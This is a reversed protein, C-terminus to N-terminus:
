RDRAARVRAGAKAADRPRPPFPDRADGTLQVPKEDLAVVPCFPDRPRQYVELVDEMAAVDTADQNPPIVWEDKLWPKLACKQPM